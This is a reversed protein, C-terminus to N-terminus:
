SFQEGNIKKVRYKVMRLSIVGTFMILPCYIITLVNNACATARSNWYVMEAGIDFTLNACTTM